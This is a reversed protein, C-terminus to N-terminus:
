RQPDAAGGRRARLARGPRLGPSLYCPVTFTGRIRRAVEADEGPTFEDVTNVAFTPSAGELTGNDLDTDGLDAFADDRMHLM